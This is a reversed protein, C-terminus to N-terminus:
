ESTRDGFQGIMDVGMDHAGGAVEDVEEGADLTIGKIHTFGFLKDVLIFTWREEELLQKQRSEDRRGWPKCNYLLKYIRNQNMQKYSRAM